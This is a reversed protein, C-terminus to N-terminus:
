YKTDLILNQKFIFIRIVISWYFRTKTTSYRSPPVTCFSIKCFFGSIMHSDTKCSKVDSYQIPYLTEFLFM